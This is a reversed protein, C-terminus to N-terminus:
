LITIFQASAIFLHHNRKQEGGGSGYRKHRIVDRRYLLLRKRSIYRLSFLLVSLVLAQTPPRCAAGSYDSSTNNHNAIKTESDNPLYDRYYLIFNVIIQHLNYNCYPFLIIFM